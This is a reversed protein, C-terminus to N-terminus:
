LKADGGGAPRDMEFLGSVGVYDRYGCRMIPDAKILDFRGDTIMADDIHIGTVQGIVMQYNSKSGNLVTPQVVELVKCEMAAPADKVRACAVTEGRAMAIGALDFEDVEPPYGGSSVNMMDQQARGVFNFTFEGTEIVNRLSDKMGGSSFMLMPPVDSVGNFFSYPALNAIGDKSVTSIWGIPRPAVIAKFPNYALNHPDEAKYFM